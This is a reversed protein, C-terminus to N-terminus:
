SAAAKGTSGRDACAVEIMDETVEQAALCLEHVHPRDQENALSTMLTLLHGRTDMVLVARQPCSTM